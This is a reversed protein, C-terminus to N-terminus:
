LSTSFYSIGSGLSGGLEEELLIPAFLLEPVIFM